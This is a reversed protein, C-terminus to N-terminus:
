LADSPLSAPSASELLFDVLYKRAAEEEAKKISQGVGKSLLKGDVYLGVAFVPEHTYRGSEDLLKYEPKSEGNRKLHEYLQVKPRDQDLFQKFNIDTRSLVYRGVFNKAAKPGQDIYIAAILAQLSDALADAQGNEQPTKGEKQTYQVVRKMGMNNAIMALTSTKTLTQVIDSLARPPLNPYHSFIQETALLSLIRSGYAELRANSSLDEPEKSHHLLAENLLNQDKFIFGIRHCFARIETKALVEHAARMDVIVDSRQAQTSAFRSANMHLPTSFVGLRRLLTAM